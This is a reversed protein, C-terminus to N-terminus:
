IRYKQMVSRHLVTPGVSEGVLVMDGIFDEDGYCWHERPNDCTAIQDEVIHIFLHHKPYWRYKFWGTDQWGNAVLHIQGM